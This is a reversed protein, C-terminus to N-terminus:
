AHAACRRVAIVSQVTESTAPLHSLRALTTDAPVAISVQYVPNSNVLTIQTIHGVRKVREFMFKHAMLEPVHFYVLKSDIIRSPLTPHTHLFRYFFAYSLINTRRFIHVIPPLRRPFTIRHKIGLV